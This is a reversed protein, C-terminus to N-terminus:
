GIDLGKYVPAVINYKKEFLEAVDQLHKTIQSNKSVKRREEVHDKLLNWSNVIFGGHVKRFNEKDVWGGEEYWSCTKDLIDQLTYVSHYIRPDTFIIPKNSEKLRYYEEVVDRKMLRLETTIMHDIKQRAEFHRHNMTAKFTFLGVGVSTILSIVSLIIPLSLESM